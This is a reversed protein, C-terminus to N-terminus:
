MEGIMRQLRYYNLFLDIRAVIQNLQARSYFFISELLETSTEIGEKYAIDSVRLNEKAQFIASEAVELNKKGVEYDILINKLATSLEQKLEGLDYETKLTELRARAVRKGKQMGDFLNIRAELTVRSEDQDRVRDGLVFNDGFRTYGAGIDIFPWYAAKLAKANNENALVLAELTKIESRNKLMVPYYYGLDFVEPIEKFEDFELAESEIASNTTFALQNISKAYDAQAETLRQQTNDMEVKLRLLDNKRIIGVSHRKEADQYRKQLLKLQEEATKENEQRRYADLYRLAVVLNLDDIVTDLEFQKSAQLHEAVQLNYKDKFGAFLNYSLVGTLRSNQKDEFTSDEGLQNAIYVMDLAPLFAGRRIQTDLEGQQYNVKFKEVLQRNAVARQQLESLTLQQASVKGSSAVGIVLLLLGFTRCLNCQRM